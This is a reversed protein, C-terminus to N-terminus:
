VSGPPGSQDDPRDRRDAVLSARRHMRSFSRRAPTRPAGPKSAAARSGPRDLAPPQQGLGMPDAADRDRRPRQKSQHRGLAPRRTGRAEYKRIIALSPERAAPGDIVEGTGYATVYLEGNSMADDICVSMAPDRRVNKVKATWSSTSILFRDGDWLYWNPSLQPGADLRNTAVIANRGRRLFDARIEDTASMCTRGRIGQRRGVRSRRGTAPGMDNVSALGESQRRARAARVRSRPRPTTRPRGDAPSPAESRTVALPRSARRRIESRRVM